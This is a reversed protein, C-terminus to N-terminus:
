LDGAATKKKYLYMLCPKNIGQFKEALTNKM